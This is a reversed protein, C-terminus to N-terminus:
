LRYYKLLHVICLAQSENYHTNRYRYLVLVVLYLDKKVLGIM